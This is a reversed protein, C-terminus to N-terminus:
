NHTLQNRDTGGGWFDENNIVGVTRGPNHLGVSIGHVLVQCILVESCEVCLELQRRPPTMPGWNQRLIKRHNRDVASSSDSM